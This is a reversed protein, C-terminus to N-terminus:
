VKEAKKDAKQLPIHEDVVSKKKGTLDIDESSYAGYGAKQATVFFVNETAFFGYIGKADTVQTELLKNYKKDFIRVVSRGLPRRSKADYVVGWGKPKGPLAIRRFLLYTLVQGVFMAALLMSPAIFLAFLTVVVSLLAVAHQLQRLYKKIIVKRPVEEKTLPDIPINASISSEEKM